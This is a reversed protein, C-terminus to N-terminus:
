PAAQTIITSYVDTFHPVVVHAVIADLWAVHWAKKQRMDATIVDILLPAAQATVRQMSNKKTKNSCPPIRALRKVGNPDYLKLPPNICAFLGVYASFVDTYIANM